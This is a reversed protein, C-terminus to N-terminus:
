SGVVFSMSGNKQDTNPREEVNVKILEIKNGRNDSIETATDLLQTYQKQVTKSVCIYHKLSSDLKIAL